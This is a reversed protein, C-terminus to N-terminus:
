ALGNGISLVLRLVVLGSCVSWLFVVVAGGAAIGLSSRDRGQWVKTALIAPGTLAFFLFSSFAGIWSQGLLAFQARRSTILRFLSAAVGATVFGVMGCYFLIIADSAVGYEGLDTGYPFAEFREQGPTAIATGSRPLVSFTPDLRNWSLAPVAAIGSSM